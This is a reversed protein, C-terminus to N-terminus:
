FSGCDVTGRNVLYNESYTYPADLAFDFKVGKKYDSIKITKAYKGKLVCGIAPKVFDSQTYQGNFTISSNSEDIIYNGSAYEWHGDVKQDCNMEISDPGVACTYYRKVLTFHGCSLKLDIGIYDNQDTTQEFTYSEWFKCELKNHWYNSTTSSPKNCAILAVTIILTLLLLKKM